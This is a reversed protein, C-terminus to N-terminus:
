PTEDCNTTPVIGLAVDSDWLVRDGALPDVLTVRYTRSRKDRAASLAALKVRMLDVPLPRKHLTGDRRYGLLLM